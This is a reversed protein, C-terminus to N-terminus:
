PLVMPMRRFAELSRDSQEAFDLHQYNRVLTVANAVLWAYATGQIFPWADPHLESLVPVRNALLHAVRLAPWAGDVYFQMNLALKARALLADREAGYTEAPVHVVNLGRERLGDLVRARRENIAGAFVVDIDLVTAREFREMSPHYGIPVHKAGYKAANAADFDWCEHSAWETRARPHVRDLNELNYVISGPPAPFEHANFCVVRDRDAEVDIATVAANIEDFCQAHVHAARGLIM